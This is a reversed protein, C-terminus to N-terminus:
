GTYSANANGSLSPLFDAKVKERYQQLFVSEQAHVGLEQELVDDDCTIFNSFCKKDPWM